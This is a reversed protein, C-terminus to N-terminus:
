GGTRVAWLTETSLDWSVEVSGDEIAFRTSGVSRVTGEAISCPGNIETNPCPAVVTGPPGQLESFALEFSTLTSLAGVGGFGDDLDAGDGCAGLITVETLEPEAVSVSSDGRPEELRGGTSRGILQFFAFPPETPRDKEDNHVSFSVIYASEDDDSLMSVQGTFGPREPVAIDADCAIEGAVDRVTVRVTGSVNSARPGQPGADPAGADEGAGVDDFLFPCAPLLALLAGALFVRLLSNM